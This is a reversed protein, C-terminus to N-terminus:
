IPVGSGRMSVAALVVVSAVSHALSAVAALVSEGSDVASAGSAGAMGSVGSVGFAASAGFAAFDGRALFDADRAAVDSLVASDESLVVTGDSFRASDCGFDWFDRGDVASVGSFLVGSVSAVSSMGSHSLYCEGLPPTIANETINRMAPIEYIEPM